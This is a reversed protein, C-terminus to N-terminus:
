IYYFSFAIKKNIIVIVNKFDIIRVTQITNFVFKTHVHSVRYKNLRKNLKSVHYYYVNLFIVMCM